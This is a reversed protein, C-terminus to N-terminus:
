NERNKVDVPKLDALSGDKSAHVVLLDCGEESAISVLHCNDFRQVLDVLLEKAGRLPSHGLDALNLFLGTRTRRNLLWSPGHNHKSGGFSPRAWFLDVLLKDLARKAGM